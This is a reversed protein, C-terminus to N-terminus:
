SCAKRFPKLAQRTNDLFITTVADESVQETQDTYFASSQIYYAKDGEWVRRGGIMQRCQTANDFDSQYEPAARFDSAAVPSAILLAIILTKM